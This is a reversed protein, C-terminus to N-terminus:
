SHSHSNQVNVLSGFVFIQEIQQLVGVVTAMRFTAAASVSGGGSFPRASSWATIDVSPLVFLVARFIEKQGPVLGFHVAGRTRKM